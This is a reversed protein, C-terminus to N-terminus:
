AARELFHRAYRSRVEALPLMLLLDATNFDPDWAPDGCVRAGARLYAKVLPPLEGPGQDALQEVPLRCRPFVRYEAPAMHDGLARYINAANHGGDAMGISACGILYQYDHELMYRAIGSWLLSIVAGGRYEADICSRGIEVIDNRLNRLRTLDFETDAYYRGLERARLPSLVRYTGVIRGYVEDRVILHECYADFIDIDRDGDTQPLRAGLERAFVRYRLRQAEGIESQCRAIGVSLRRQPERHASASLQLM